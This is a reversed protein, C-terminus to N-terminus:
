RKGHKLYLTSGAIDIIANNSALIECGLLGLMPGEGGAQESLLFPPMKHVGVVSSAIEYSDVKWRELRVPYMTAQLGVMTMTMGNSHIHGMSSGADRNYLVHQFPVIDPAMVTFNAGTDVIMRVPKGEVVCSVAFHRDGTSYMPIATWGGAILSPGVKIRKSPDLNLYVGRRAWDIIANYHRLVDEGLLGSIALGAHQNNYGGFMLSMDIVGVPRKGLEAVGLQLSDVYGVEAPEGNSKFKQGVEPPLQGPAADKSRVQARKYFARDLVTGSAGTDLALMTSKGNVTARVTAQNSSATLVLPAVVYGPVGQTAAEVPVAALGAAALLAAAACARM